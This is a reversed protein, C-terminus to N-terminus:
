KYSYAFVAKQPLKGTEFSFKVKGNAGFCYTHGTTATYSDADSIFVDDDFANITIGYLISIPTGDTIFSSGLTGNTVDLSKIDPSTYVDKFVYASTKNINIDSLDYAFTNTTTDKASSIVDLTPDNNIIFDNWTVVFLNGNAAAKIKVPNNHVEIDKTKTFTELNIVSVQNKAGDQYFPHSSNCVYLKGNAVALGELGETLAIEGDVTLSTTDIRSVKGDYRSVYAKNKYFAIYRPMQGATATNFSIRKLSRGTAIDMVDVFSQKAGTPGTIVCYMKSGYQELDNAGAGLDTGNVKKYYDTESKKTAVDYYTIFSTSGGECLVYVGTTGTAVPPPVAQKLAPHDKKCSTIAAMLLVPLAYPLLKLTVSRKM